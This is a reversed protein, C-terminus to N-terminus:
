FVVIVGTTKTGGGTQRCALASIEGSEKQSIEYKDVFESKSYFLVFIDSV